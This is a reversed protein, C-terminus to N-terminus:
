VTSYPLSIRQLQKTMSPLTTKCYVNPLVYLYYQGTINIQKCGQTLVRTLSISIWLASVDYFRELDQREQQEM